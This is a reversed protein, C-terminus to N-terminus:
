MPVSSACRTASSALLPRTRQSTSTEVVMGGDRYGDRRQGDLVLDDDAHGSALVAHAAEEVGVVRLAALAGPTEPGHGAGALGAVLSPRPVTPFAAGGRGPDGAGVVRLQVENIPSGAVGARVPVPFDAFAVVQVGIRQQREVRVAALEAPMELERGVVDVVPVGRLNRHEHFAHHAALLALEDQEGVAVGEVIDEVAFRALEQM